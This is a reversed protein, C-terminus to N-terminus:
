ELNKLVYELAEEQPVVIDPLTGHIDHEDAGYQWLRRYSLSCNLGSVPLKYNIIDGFSVNMGGTEEGVVTGMGLEKFVWSFSAASSFTKHSVLLYVRGDFHGEAATRPMILEKEDTSNFYMGATSSSLQRRKLRMTTPTIRALSKTFQTFPKTSLYRLLEDGVGSSGGGNQRIDIILNGIGNERLATFMSDAFVGMWKPDEFVRFDMVAVGKDKMISFSYAPAQTGDGKDEPMRGDMEQKTAAALTVSKVKRSGRERYEVKYNDADYLMMFLYPFDGNVRSLRFFYREGPEYRMMRELMERAGTGNIRLVEAGKPITGDICQRVTLAYRETDIDFTVPLRRRAKVRGDWHPFRLCTHGDGIMAVLPAVAMYLEARTLSDPLCRKMSDVASMFRDQGCVAFMNPHTESITYILADIDFRAQQRSMRETPSMRVAEKDPNELPNTRTAEERKRRSILKEVPIWRIQQFASDRGNKLVVFDYVGDEMINFTLSDTDSKYTVRHAATEYVDPRMEPELIWAKVAPKRSGDEFIMLPKDGAQMVPLNTQATASAAAMTLALILNTKRM